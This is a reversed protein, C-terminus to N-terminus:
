FPSIAAHAKKSLLFFIHGHSQQRPMVLALFHIAGGMTHQLLPCSNQYVLGMPDRALPPTVHKGNDLLQGLVYLLRLSRESLLTAYKFQYFMRVSGLDKCIISAFLVFISSEIRQPIYPKVFQIL